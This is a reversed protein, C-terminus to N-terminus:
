GKRAGLIDTGVAEVNSLDRAARYFQSRLSKRRTM